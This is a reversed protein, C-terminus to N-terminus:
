IHLAMSPGHLVFTLIVLVSSLAWSCPMFHSQLFYISRQLSDLCNRLTLISLISVNPLSSGLQRSLFAEFNCQCGAVADLNRM